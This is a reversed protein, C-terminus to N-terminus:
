WRSWLVLGTAFGLMIFSEVGLLAWRLPKGAYASRITIGMHIAVILLAAWWLGRSTIKSVAAPQEQVEPLPELVEVPTAVVTEEHGDMLLPTDTLAFKSGLLPASIFTHCTDQEPLVPAARASSTIFLEGDLGLVSCAIPAISSVDSPRFANTHALVSQSSVTPIQPDMSCSAPSFGHLARTDHCLRQSSVSGNSSRTLDVQSNSFDYCIITHTSELSTDSKRSTQAFAHM